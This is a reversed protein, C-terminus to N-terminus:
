LARVFIFPDCGKAGDSRADWRPVMAARRVRQVSRLACRVRM